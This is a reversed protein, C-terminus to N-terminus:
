SDGLIRGLKAKSSMEERRLSRLTSIM